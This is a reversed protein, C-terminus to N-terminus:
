IPAEMSTPGSPRAFSQRLQGPTRRHSRHSARSGPENGDRTYGQFTPFSPFVGPKPATKNGNNGEGVVGARPSIAVSIGIM